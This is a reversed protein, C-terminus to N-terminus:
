TAYKTPLHPKTVMIAFLQQIITIGFLEQMMSPKEDLISEQTPSTVYDKSLTSFPFLVLHVIGYLYSHYEDILLGLPYPLLIHPLYYLQENHLLYSLLHINVPQANM